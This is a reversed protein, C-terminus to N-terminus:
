QPLEKAFIIAQSTITGEQYPKVEGTPVFGQKRWFPMVAANTEVVSLRMHTITHFTAYVHNEVLCYAQQGLGQGHLHEPFLLWGLTATRANPWGVLLDAVGLLDEGQYFGFTHRTHDGVPLGDNNFVEAAENATAVAGTVRQYYTPAAELVAQLQALTTPTPHLPRISLPM